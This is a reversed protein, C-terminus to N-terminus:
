RNVSIKSELQLNDPSSYSYQYLGDKAVLLLNGNWAIADYTEMNSIQNVLTISRPDSAQYMKLGAKGDCIFLLNNDKTLGHPNVMQYSRVFFPANLNNINLVQLENLFGACATGDRLTVYAYDGDTIVPDCSRTHQFQGQAVPIAPNSIDYIFMGNSSGIFLSNRFPYITEINWGIQQTATQVPNSNDSIDFSTLSSHNVTYLYNNVLSFRAMSGAMGVPLAKDTGGANGSLLTGAYMLYECRNCYEGIRVTTDKKIWGVIVRSTDAIFNGTYNRTPFVNPIYKVFRAQLPDTIDVVVLDTYLDAYLTNGKVAIDLCGPINIFTKIVPLSPNSNDIVHIGKDVENLFIFNGYLFIKGPQEVKVPTNSKINAYVESKEKYVPTLITYTHTLRDKLCGALICSILVAQLYVIKKM